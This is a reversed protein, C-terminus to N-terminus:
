EEKYLQKELIHQLIEDPVMEKLRDLGKGTKYYERITSRVITSSIEVGPIKEFVTIKSKWISVAKMEAREWFGVECDGRDFVAVEAVEFFSKMENEYDSYYKRDFFRTITDYGMLYVQHGLFLKTKDIFRKEACTQIILSTEKLLQLMELKVTFNDVVKEANASSLLLVSTYNKYYQQAIQLM